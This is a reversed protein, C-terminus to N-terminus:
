VGCCDLHFLSLAENQHQPLLQKIALAASLALQIWQFSLLPLSFPFLLTLLWSPICAPPRPQACACVCAALSRSGPCECPLFRTHTAACLAGPPSVAWAQGSLYLIDPDVTARRGRRLRSTRPRRHFTSTQAVVREERSGLRTRWRARPRWPWCVSSWAPGAKTVPVSTKSGQAVNRLRVAGIDGHQSSVCAVPVARRPAPTRGLRGPRTCGRGWM